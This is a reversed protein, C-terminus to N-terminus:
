AASVELSECEFEMEIGYCKARKQRYRFQIDKSGDNVGVKDAIGDRIAKFSASLGDDDMDRPALRTLTVKIPIRLGAPTAMYALRRERAVRKAKTGWHERSNLSNVTKLPLAIVM